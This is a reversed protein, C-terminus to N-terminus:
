VAVVALWQLAGAAVQLMRKRAAEMRCRRADQEKIMAEAHDDRIRQEEADALEQQKKLAAVHALFMKMEAAADAQLGSPCSILVRRRAPLGHSVRADRASEAM